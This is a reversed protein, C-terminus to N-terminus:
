ESVVVWNENSSRGCCHGEEASEADFDTRLDAKVKRNM